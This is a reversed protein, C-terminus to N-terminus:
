TKLFSSHVPTIIYEIYHALSPIYLLPFPLPSLMHLVWYEKKINRLKKKFQKEQKQKKQLKEGM